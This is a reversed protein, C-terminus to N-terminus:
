IDTRYMQRRYRLLDEDTVGELDSDDNRREVGRDAENDDQIERNKERLVPATLEALPAADPSRVPTAASPEQGDPPTEDFIQKLITEVQPALPVDHPTVDIGIDDSGYIDVTEITTVPAHDIVEIEFEGEPIELNVTLGEVGECFSGSAALAPACWLGLLLGAAGAGSLAAFKGPEQREPM